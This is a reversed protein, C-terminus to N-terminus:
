WDDNSQDEEEPEIKEFNSELEDPHLVKCEDCKGSLSNHWRCIACPRIEEM